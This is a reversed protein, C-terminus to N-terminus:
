AARAAGVLQASGEALFVWGAMCLYFLATAVLGGGLGRSRLFYIPLALPTVLIVLGNFETGTRMQRQLVDEKFWLYVLVVTILILGQAALIATRTFESFEALAGTAVATAASALLVLTKKNM